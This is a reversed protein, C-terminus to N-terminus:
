IALFMKIISIALYIFVVLIPIIKKLHSFDEKTFLEKEWDYPEVPIILNFLAVLVVIIGLVYIKIDDFIIPEKGSFAERFWSVVGIPYKSLWLAINIIIIWIFGEIIGWVIGEERTTNCGKERIKEKKEEFKKEFAEGLHDYNRGKGIYYKHVGASSYIRIDTVGLDGLYKKAGVATEIYRRLRRCYGDFTENGVWLNDHEVITYVPYPYIYGGDSSGPHLKQQNRVDEEKLRTLRKFGEEASNLDNYSFCGNEGNIKYFVEVRYDTM